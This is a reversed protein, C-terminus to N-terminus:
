DETATDLEVHISNNSKALMDSLLMELYWLNRNDVMVADGKIVVLANRKSKVIYGGGETRIIETKVTCATFLLCLSIIAIRM